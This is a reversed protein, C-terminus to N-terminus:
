LLAAQRVADPEDRRVSFVLHPMDMGYYHKVMTDRLTMGCRRAVNQSAINTDRIIAYVEQMALRRFAYDRCAAAAEAAYGRHWHAKQLLYGIEPVEGGGYPQMTIGCQGLMEGSERLIVAWLGFGYERYRWLQKQLWGDVEDEDFAHEYAYMVEPDQLMRCLAPRDAHDMSRLLLRKTELICNM